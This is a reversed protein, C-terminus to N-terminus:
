ASKRKFRDSNKVVYKEIVSYAYYTELFDILAYGICLMFFLGALTNFFFLLSIAFGVALIGLNPLFKAATFRLANSLIQKLTLDVSVIMPYIYIHMMAYLLTFLMLLALLVSASATGTIMPNQTYFRIMVCVLGVIGFDILSMAFGQKWNKKVSQWFDYWLFAEQERAYNRLVGIFGVHLPGVTILQFAVATFALFIRVSLDSDVNTTRFRFLLFSLLAAVAFAPLCTVFHLLNLRVMAFFKRKLIAFFDAFSAIHTRDEPVGQGEKEFDM